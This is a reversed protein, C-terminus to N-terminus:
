RGGSPAASQPRAPAAGPREQAARQVAATVANLASRAVTRRQGGPHQQQHHHQHDDDATQHARDAGRDDHEPLYRVQPSPCISVNM